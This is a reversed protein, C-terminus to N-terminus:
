IFNTIIKLPIEYFMRIKWKYIFKISFYIFPFYLIVFLQNPLLLRLEKLLTNKIDKLGNLRAFIITDITEAFLLKLFLDNFSKNKFSNATEKVLRLHEFHVKYVEPSTYWANEVNQNLIYYKGGLNLTKGYNKAFFISFIIEIHHWYPSFSSEQELWKTKDVINGSIQLTYCFKPNIKGDLILDKSEKSKRLIKNKEDFSDHNLVLNSYRGTNLIALLKDIKDSYVVEGGGILWVYKGSANEFISQMNLSAGINNSHELFRFNVLRNEFEKIIEKSRDTSNNDSILIEIEDFKIEELSILTKEIYKEENYIPVGITLIINKSM